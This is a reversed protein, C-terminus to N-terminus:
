CGSTGPKRTSSRSCTTSSSLDFPTCSVPSIPRYLFVRQAWNESGSPFQRSILSTRIGPLGGAQSARRGALRYKSHIKSRLRYPFRYVLLQYYRHTRLKDVTPLIPGWEVTPLYSCVLMRKASGTSTKNETATKGQVWSNSWVPMGQESLPM